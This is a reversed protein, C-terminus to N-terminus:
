RSANLRQAILSFVAISGAFLVSNYFQLWTLLLYQGNRSRTIMRGEEVRDARRRGNALRHLAEESQPSENSVNASFGCFLSGYMGHHSQFQSQRLNFSVAKYNNIRHQRHIHCSLKLHGLCLSAPQTIVTGWKNSACRRSMWMDLPVPWWDLPGLTRGLRPSDASM